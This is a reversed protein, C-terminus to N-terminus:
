HRGDISFRSITLRHFTQVLSCKGGLRPQNRDKPKPRCSAGRRYAGPSCPNSPVPWWPRNRTGWRPGKRIASPNRARRWAPAHRGAILLNSFGLLLAIRQTNKALGRCRVKAYGFPHEVRARVSGKRREAAAEPGSPDLQRRKGRKMAGQWDGDMDRNEERKGM